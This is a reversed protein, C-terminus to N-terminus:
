CAMLVCPVCYSGDSYTTSVTTSTVKAITKSRVIDDDQPKATGDGASMLLDGRAVTTGQAIRIIFDGTMACYFDNTYTDDDDDWAQFVGAVNVDGEIDSIKMRNLQENDEEGWECMEDLNSLVSGRLIETREAGSALQSWRTLHGGNYSITSGSVSISGEKGSDQYFNVLDGDSSLRNIYMVTSDRVADIYGDAGLVTGKTSFSTSTKGYCLHGNSLIRMREVAATRFVFADNNHQYEIIGRYSENGTSGDAFHISSSTSSTADITIGTHTTGSIVFNDASSDFSGPSTTGIGVNGAIYVNGAQTVNFTETGSTNVGKIWPDQSNTANIFRDSTIVGDVHLLTSPSTTGIGVNGSSDIRMSETFTAAADATGSSARAWTHTNQYINYRGAPASTAYKYGSNYYANSLLHINGAGEGWLVNGEAGIELAKGLSHTNPTVGIGVNGSGDIRMRETSNTLIRIDNNERQIIYAIGSQHVIDLGDVNGNGSTGDSIKLRAGNTTSTHINVNTGYSNNISTTGIGVNGSSDIRLRESGASAIRLSDSSHDYNLYGRALVTDSFFLRSLNTTGANINVTTTDSSRVDLEYAPSSTGFGASGTTVVNQSGFNPSIKTGAIAASSSVKANTVAGDVLHVTDVTNNSPAGINVSTGVTVIFFDAGTAPAAGFIIDSGDIAFGESPQGTGSNPKQIVGNISVIHQQAYTGPNSLTFRYASGNFTASGGGTGSSSSLTNIYYNGVAQVEEWASTTSDYVLMKGTSTNFFLDGADLDTTPNTAGVRYRAFFDNVDDSLQAIDADTALVKHYNYTNLTSTTVVQLGQGAALTTSRLATPFGNITVTSGGTTRGTTSVGSSNVVVGGADSISVVTGADDSPDPNANPFSVEDAIAVFGGLSDMLGVVYNSIANSSPYQTTSSATFSNTLTNGDLQNLESTTATIGDVVNLETTTATVGDLKNLEATTVTAGDLVQVEAATLDALSQATATGMTALEKLEADALKVSTVNGDLIEATGVSNNAMKAQTVADNAIKDTTVNADAIKATTVNADLIKATTVANGAIDGAVITGDAIKASTVADNALKATTVNADAIKATTVAANNIKATTVNSDAIKASTVAGSALEASDIAADTVAITIKGSSPTNDSVTIANGAVVDGTLASDIKSDVRADVAGTTPAHADDSTWTEGSDIFGGLDGLDGTGTDLADYIDSFEQLAFRNQKDSNNLDDATLTSGATFDVTADVISTDRKLLVTAGSVATNLVIATGAANFTYDTTLTQLVDNVTVSIDSQRLYEIANGDSNTLAFTTGSASTYTISAFAM